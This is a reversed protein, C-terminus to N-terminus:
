RISIQQIFIDEFFKKANIDLYYTMNILDELKETKIKPIYDSDVTKLLRIGPLFEKRTM